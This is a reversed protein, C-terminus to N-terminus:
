ESAGQQPPQRTLNKGEQWAINRQIDRGFSAGFKGAGSEKGRHAVASDTGQGHNGAHRHTTVQFVQTSTGAVFDGQGTTIEMGSFSGPDLRKRSPVPAAEKQLLPRALFREELRAEERPRVTERGVKPVSDTWYRAPRRANGGKRPNGRAPDRPRRKRM